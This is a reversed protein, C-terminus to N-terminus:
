VEPQPRLLLLDHEVVPAKVLYIMLAVIVGCTLVSGEPGYNGGSWIAGAKWRMTFGSVGMTFGSINAGFLPLTWNWGFHVGIALWLDGSRAVAYGLVIGFGVTNVLALTTVNQNEAHMAAFLVAVPLITAFRGLRGMLCQFGYGRFLMEEGIAGFLLVVSVFILPGIGAQQQPDPRLEAMGAAIPGLLVVAAAGIGGLLGLALNRSSGSTWGLGIAPLRAREFIRLTIANAAAAAAFVGVAATVLTGALPNLVLPFVVLGLVALLIFVGVKLVVALWDKPLAAPSASTTEANQEM